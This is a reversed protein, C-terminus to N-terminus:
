LLSIQNMDLRRKSQVKVRRKINISNKQMKGDRKM